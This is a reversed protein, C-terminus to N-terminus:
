SSDINYNKKFSVNQQIVYGYRQLTDAHQVM